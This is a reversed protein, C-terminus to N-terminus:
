GLVVVREFMDDFLGRGQELTSFETDPFNYEKSESIARIVKSVIVGKNVSKVQGIIYCDTRSPFDYSKIVDGVQVQM